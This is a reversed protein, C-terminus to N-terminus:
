NAKGAVEAVYHSVAEIQEASLRDAQPRMMGSGATVARCVREIDPKLEDLNAGIRGSAGAEHLSHCQSCPPISQELFVKRGAATRPDLVAVTGNQPQGGQATSQRCASSLLLAVFLLPFHVSLGTLLNPRKM